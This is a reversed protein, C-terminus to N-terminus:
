CPSSATARRRAPSTLRPGTVTRQQSAHGSASRRQGGIRHHSGGKSGQSLRADLCARSLATRSKTTVRQGATERYWDFPRGDTNIM